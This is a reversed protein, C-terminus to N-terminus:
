AYLGNGRLNRAHTHPLVSTYKLPINVLDPRSQMYPPLYDETHGRPTSVAGGIVSNRYKKNMYELDGGKVVRNIKDYYKDPNDYFNDIGKNVQSSVVEAAVKGVLPNGTAATVATAVGANVAKKTAYKVAPKIVDGVKYAKKKIGIKKMLRDGAKGFLGEGDIDRNHNIETESLSLNMGKNNNMAKDLKKYKKDDVYVSMGSGYMPRNIRVAKGRKLKNIQAKTLDLKVIM